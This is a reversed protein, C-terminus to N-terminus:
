LGTLPGHPLSQTPNLFKSRNKWLGTKQVPAPAIDQLADMVATGSGGDVAQLVALGRECRAKDEESDIAPVHDFQETGSM